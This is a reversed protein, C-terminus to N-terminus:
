SAVDCISARTTPASRDFREKQPREKDGRGQEGDGASGTAALIGEAIVCWTTVEPIRLVKQRQTGFEGGVNGGVVQELRWEYAPKAM